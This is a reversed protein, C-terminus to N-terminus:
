NNSKINSLTNEIPQCMSKIKNYDAKNLKKKYEWLKKNHIINDSIDHNFCELNFVKFINNDETGSLNYKNLYYERCFTINKIIGEINKICKYSSHKKLSLNIINEFLISYYYKLLIFYNSIYINKFSHTKLPTFSQKTKAKRFDGVGIDKKNKISNFNYNIYPISKDPFKYIELLIKNDLKLVYKKDIIDILGNYQSINLKKLLQKDLNITYKGKPSNIVSNSKLLDLINNMLSLPEKTIIVYKYIHPINIKNYNSYINKIQETYLKYIYDGTFMYSYSSINNYFLIWKIITYILPIKNLRYNFINNNNGNLMYFDNCYKDFIIKYLYFKDWKKYDNLPDILHNLLNIKIVIPSVVYFTVNNKNIKISTNFLKNYENQTIHTIQIIHLGRNYEGIKIKCIVRNNLHIVESKINKYNLKQLNKIIDGINKTGKISYCEYYIDSERINNIIDLDYDNINNILLLEKMAIYGHVILNYKSIYQEIMDTANFKYQRYLKDENNNINDVINDVINSKISIIQSTM